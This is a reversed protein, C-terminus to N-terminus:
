MESNKGGFVLSLSGEWPVTVSWMSEGERSVYTGDVISHIGPSRPRGVARHGSGVLGDRDIRVIGGQLESEIYV